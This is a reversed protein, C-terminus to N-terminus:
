IAHTAPECGLEVVFFVFPVLAIQRDVRDEVACVSM